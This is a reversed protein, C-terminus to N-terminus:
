DEDGFAGYIDIGVLPLLIDRPDRYDAYYRHRKSKALRAAAGSIGHSYEAFHPTARTCTHIHLLLTYVSPRSKPVTNILSTLRYKTM